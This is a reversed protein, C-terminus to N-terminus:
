VEFGLIDEFFRTTAEVDAVHMFPTIQMFNAMARTHAWSPPWGRKTFPARSLAPIQCVVKLELTQVAFEQKKKARRVRLFSPGIERVKKM